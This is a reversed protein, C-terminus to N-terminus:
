AILELNDSLRDNIFNLFGDISMMVSGVSSTDAQVSQVNIYTDINVRFQSLLRKNDSRNDKPILMSFELAHSGKEVLKSITALANYDGRYTAIISQMDEQEQIVDAELMKIVNALGTQYGADAIRGASAVKWKATLAELASDIISIAKDHCQQSLPAFGALIDAIAKKKGEVTYDNSMQINEVKSIVSECNAKYGTLLNVLETKKSM